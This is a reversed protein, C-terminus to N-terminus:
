PRPRSFTLKVAFCYGPLKWPMRARWRRRYHQEDVTLLPRHMSMRAERSYSYLMNTHSCSAAKQLPNYRLGPTDINVGFRLLTDAHVVNQAENGAVTVLAKTAERPDADHSLLERLVGSDEFNVALDLLGPKTLDAKYKLLLDVYGLKKLRLATKMPCDILAPGNPDVGHELLAMAAAFHDGSISEELAQEMYLQPVGHSQRQVYATLACGGLNASDLLDGLLISPSAPAMHRVLLGCIRKCHVSAWQVMPKGELNGTLSLGPNHHLMLTVFDTKKRFVARALSHNGIDGYYRRSCRALIDAGAEVLFQVRDTDDSGAAIFLATRNSYDRANVSVGKELLFKALDFVGAILLQHFLKWGVDKNFYKSDMKMVARKTLDHDGISVIKETVSGFDVGRDLLANLVPVSKIRIASEFLHKSFAHVTPTQFDMFRQLVALCQHQIVWRLFGDLKTSDIGNNSAFFATLAFLAPLAGAAPSSTDLIRELKGSLDGERREPVFGQFRTAFEVTSQAPFGILDSLMKRREVFNNSSGAGQSAHIRSPPSVGLRWSHHAIWLTLLSSFSSSERFMGSEEETVALVQFWPLNSTLIQHLNARNGADVVDSSLVPSAEISPPWRPSLGLSHDWDLVVQAELQMPSPAQWPFIPTAAQMPSDRPLIPTAAQLVISLM